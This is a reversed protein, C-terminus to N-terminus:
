LVPHVPIGVQSKLKPPDTTIAVHPIKLFCCLTFPLLSPSFASLSCSIPVWTSNEKLSEASLLHLLPVILCYGSLFFNLLTKQKNYSRGHCWKLLGISFSLSIMTLLCPFSPPGVSVKILHYPICSITGLPSVGLMLLPITHQAAYPIM